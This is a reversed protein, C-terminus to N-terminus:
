LPDMEWMCVIKEKGSQLFLLIVGVNGAALIKCIETIAQQGTM